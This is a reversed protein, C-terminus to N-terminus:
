RVPKLRHRHMKEYYPLHHEYSRRLKPDLDLDVPAADARRAIGSSKAVNRHWGAVFQWDKPLAGDWQLASEHHEIDLALCYARMTADPDEQLDDADLVIPPEGTLVQVKEFVRYQAEIGVEEETYDKDLKYYSVIARAPDRILFTNKVRELFAADDLLYDIVYYCMDKVFVPESEAAQLIMQRIATYSTPHSPVPDFHALRKKADGVYYLYIFPEHLTRMDGRQVMVRELVTSLSRPHSWLFVIDQM